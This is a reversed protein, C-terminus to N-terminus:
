LHVTVEDIRGRLDEIRSLLDSMAAHYTALLLCTLRGHARARCGRVRSQFQKQLGDREMGYRETWKPAVGTMM